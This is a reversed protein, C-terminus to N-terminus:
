SVAWYYAQKRRDAKKKMRISRSSTPWRDAFADVMERDTNVISVILSGNNRKTARGIRITGEGELVGALWDLSAPM